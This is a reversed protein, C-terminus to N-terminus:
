FTSTLPLIVDVVVLDKENRVEIKGNHESVILYSITMGLGTGKGVEKSTFFPDFVQKIEEDPIVPGTNTISIRACTSHDIYEENVYIQIREKEKKEKSMIADIANDLINSFVQQLPEEYCLVKLGPPIEKTLSIAAPIKAEIGNLVPYFLRNLENVKKESQEPSAFFNLSSIIDTARKVGEFASEVIQDIQKILKEKEPSKGKELKLYESKLTNLAYLSGSIFNLPNNIEHAIGSTLTGLSAMKEAQLLEKQQKRMIEEYELNKALLLGTAVNVFVFIIIPIFNYYFRNEMVIPMITESGDSLYILYNDILLALFFYAILTIVLAWRHRVPHLIFHPILSIAIPVYPFWFYFEDDVLGALPPLILIIIPTLTLILIRALGVFRFRILILSIICILIYSHYRFSIPLLEEDFVHLLIVIAGFVLICFYNIFILSVIERNRDFRYGLSLKELSPRKIGM